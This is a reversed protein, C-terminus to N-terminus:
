RWHEFANWLTPCCRWFGTWLARIRWVQWQLRLQAAPLALLHLLLRQPAMAEQAAGSGRAEAEADKRAKEVDPHSRDLEPGEGEFKANCLRQAELANDTWEPYPNSTQM